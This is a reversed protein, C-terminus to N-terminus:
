QQKKQWEKRMTNINAQIRYLEMIDEIAEIVPPSSNDSDM